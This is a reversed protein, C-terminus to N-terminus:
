YKLRVNNTGGPTGKGGKVTSPVSSHYFNHLCVTPWPFTELLIVHSPFTGWLYAKKDEKLM